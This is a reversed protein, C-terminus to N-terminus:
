DGGKVAAAARGSDLECLKRVIEKAGELVLRTRLALFWVRARARRCFLSCRCHASPRGGSGRGVPAAGGRREGGGGGDPNGGRRGVGDGVGGAGAGEVLDGAVRDGDAKDRAVRQRGALEPGQAADRRADLGCVPADRRPLRLGGGDGREGGDGLALREPRRRAAASGESAPRRLEAADARHV